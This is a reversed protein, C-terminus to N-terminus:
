STINTFISLHGPDADSLVLKLSQQRRGWAECFACACARDFDFRFTSNILMEPRLQFTFYLSPLEDLRRIELQPSAADHM